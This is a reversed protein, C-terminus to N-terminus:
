SAILPAAVGAWDSRAQTPLDAVPISVVENVRYNELGSSLSLFGEEFQFADRVSGISFIM